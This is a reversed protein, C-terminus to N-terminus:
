NQLGGKQRVFCLCEQIAGKFCCPQDMGIEYSRSVLVPAIAKGISVKGLIRKVNLRCDGANAITHM